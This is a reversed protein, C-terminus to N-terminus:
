IVEVIKLKIMEQIFGMSHGVAQELQKTPLGMYAARAVVARSYALPAQSQEASLQALIADYRGQELLEKSISM